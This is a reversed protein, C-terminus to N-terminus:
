AVAHGFIQLLPRNRPDSASGLFFIKYKKQLFLKIKPSNQYFSINNFRPMSILLAFVYNYWSYLQAIHSSGIALVETRNDVLQYIM